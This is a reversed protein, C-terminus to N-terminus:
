LQLIDFENVYSAFFQLILLGPISEICISACSLDTKQRVPRHFNIKLPANVKEENRFLTISKLNYAHLKARTHTVYM